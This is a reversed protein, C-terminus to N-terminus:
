NGDESKRKRCERQRERLCVRCVRSGDARRRTNEANIEHGKRCHTKVIDPPQVVPCRPGVLVLDALRTVPEDGRYVRAANIRKLREDENTWYRVRKAAAVRQRTALPIKYM